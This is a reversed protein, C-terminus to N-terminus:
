LYHFIDHASQVMQHIFTYRSLFSLTKALELGFAPMRKHTIKDWIVWKMQEFINRIGETWKTPLNNAAALEM